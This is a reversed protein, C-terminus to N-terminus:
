PRDHECSLDPDSFLGVYVEPECRQGKHATGHGKHATRNPVSTIWSIFSGTGHLYQAGARPPPSRFPADCAVTNGNLCQHYDDEASRVPTLDNAEGYSFEHVPKWWVSAVVAMFITGCLVGALVVRVNPKALILKVVAMFITGCLVGALLIVRVDRKAWILKM